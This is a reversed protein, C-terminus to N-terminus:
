FRDESEYTEWEDLCFTRINRAMLHVGFPLTM